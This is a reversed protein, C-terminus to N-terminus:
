RSSRGLETIAGKDVDNMLVTVGRLLTEYNRSVESMEAVRQVVSVNSQELAAPALTPKEVAKAPGDAKFPSAGARALWVGPDFEVIKLQGAMTGGSRVTGDPDITVEGTGITIPGSAGLVPDGGETALIGDARRLLHGNRTYREGGATQVAFFGSGEIAVDLSRGTPAVAGARLDMRARGSAVDVAAQLTQDFAARRAEVTSGREAKYGSTSANAIDSAIRDLAALRAQMGSLAAYYGGAM